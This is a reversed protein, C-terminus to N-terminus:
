YISRQQQVTLLVRALTKPATSQTARRSRGRPPSTLCITTPYLQHGSRHQKVM